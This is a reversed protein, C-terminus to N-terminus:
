ELRVGGPGALDTPAAVIKGAAGARDARLDVACENGRWRVVAGDAGLLVRRLLGWPDARAPAIRACRRPVRWPPSHLVAPVPMPVPLREELAHAPLPRGRAARARRARRGHPREGPGAPGRARADMAREDCAACIRDLVAPIRGRVLRHRRVSPGALSSAPRGPR